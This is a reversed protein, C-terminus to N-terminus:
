VEVLAKITGSGPTAWRPFADPVGDLTARDTVWALVDAGGAEILAISRGFDAGTANRSAILTQERRHFDPDHFTVDGQFLGVFVLRGGHAVLAFAGHMSAANGTADFVLTPLEGGSAVRVAAAPDDGPAVTAVEAWREVFARRDPSVDAVLPRVGAALLHATVALGIPGAGVVLTREGAAPAGRVVAHGGISLPEVLALQDLTLTASPHLYSAPVVIRERMGGDVHAGLVTLSPCANGVGRRCTDCTGCAIAPRLAARDGARVHTVGAGVRVVEVGLEHGLIRPYSFFPQRGHFAHLDTGCVGIRRIAVLAEGPGPEAADPLEIPELRGPETLVVAKM